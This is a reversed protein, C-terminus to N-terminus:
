ELGEILSNYRKLDIIGKEKLHKAITNRNRNIKNYEESAKIYKPYSDYILLLLEKSTLKDYLQRVINIGTLLHRLDENQTKILDNLLKNYNERGNNTLKVYGGSLYDKNSPKIYIWSKDLYVPDKIAEPIEPSFPGRYHEIFHLYIRISPDFNWLLFVEKELHLISIKSDKAGLVLLILNELGKNNEEQEIIDQKM